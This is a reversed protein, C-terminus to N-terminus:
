HQQNAPLPLCQNDDSNCGTNSARALISINSFFLVWPLIYKFLFLLLFLLHVSVSAAALNYQISFNSLSAALNSKPKSKKDGLLPTSASM